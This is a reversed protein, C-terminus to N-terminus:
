PGNKPVSRNGSPSTGQYPGTGAGPADFTTIAGDKARVFGHSVSNDDIIVGAIEGSDNIDLEATGQYVFANLQVCIVTTGAGPGDFATLEGDQQRVFGHEVCNADVYFGTTTGAANISWPATGQYASIGAAPADFKTIKGDTSRIFGHGANNADLFWGAVEGSPTIAYPFTGQGTGTGAETVDFTIIQAKKQAEAWPALVMAGFVCVLLMRSYNM